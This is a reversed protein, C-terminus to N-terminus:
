EERKFKTACVRFSLKKLLSEKNKETLKYNSLKPAKKIMELKKYHKFDIVRYLGAYDPVDEAGIDFGYIVYYFYKPQITLLRKRKEEFQLIQHRRKKFDHKFDSKSLKVEFFYCYWSNTIHLLDVENYYNTYVNPINIGSKFNNVIIHQMDSENVVIREM